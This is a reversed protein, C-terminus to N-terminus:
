VMYERGLISASLYITPSSALDEASFYGLESEFGHVKGFFTVGCSTEGAEYVDWQWGSASCRFIAVIEKDREGDTSGLPKNAQLAIEDCIGLFTEKNM